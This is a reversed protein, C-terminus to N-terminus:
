LIGRYLHCYMYVICVTYMNYVLKVVVYPPVLSLEKSSITYM